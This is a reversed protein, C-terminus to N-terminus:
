QSLNALINAAWDEDNTVYQVNGKGWDSGLNFAKLYDELELSVIEGTKLELILGRPDSGMRAWLRQVTEPLYILNKGKDKFWPSMPLLLQAMTPIPPITDVIHMSTYPEAIHGIVTNGTASLM